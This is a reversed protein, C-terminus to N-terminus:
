NLIRFHVQNEVDTRPAGLVCFSLWYFNDSDGSSLLSARRPLVGGFSGTELLSVRQILMAALWESRGQNWFTQSLSLFM